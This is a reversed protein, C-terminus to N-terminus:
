QSFTRHEEDFSIVLQGPRGTEPQYRVKRVNILTVNNQEGPVRSVIVGIDTKNAFHASDSVDYLSLDEPRKKAGEKTPHAVVIVLVDFRRGFRKLARIARGVYESQNEERRRTHEIENWPDIMLVRIGHRIVAAAAREIIWDVDTIDEEEDGAAADPAIFVFHQEIWADANQCDAETWERKPTQLKVARLTNIVFPKIRM